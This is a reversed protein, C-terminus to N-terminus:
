NIERCSVEGLYLLVTWRERYDLVFIARLIDVIWMMVGVLVADWLLPVSIAGRGFAPSPTVHLRVIVRLLLCVQITDGLNIPHLAHGKTDNHYLCCHNM